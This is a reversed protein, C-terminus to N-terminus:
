GITLSSKDSQTEAKSTFAGHENRNEPAVGDHLIEDM